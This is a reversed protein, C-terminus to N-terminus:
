KSFDQVLYVYKDNWAVGISVKVNAPDLIADRNVWNNLADETIMEDVMQSVIDKLSYPRPLERRVITEKVGAALQPNYRFVDTTALEESYRQATLSTDLSITALGQKGRATNILQLTYDRLPQTEADTPFTPPSINQEGSNSLGLLANISWLGVAIACLFFLVRVRNVQGYTTKQPKAAKEEPVEVEDAPLYKVGRPRVGQIPEEGGEDTAERDFVSKIKKETPKKVKFDKSFAICNHAEPPMHESCFTLNCLKCRTNEELEKGCHYCIGMPFRDPM